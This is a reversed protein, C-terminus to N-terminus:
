VRSSALWSIDNEVSKSGIKYKQKLFGEVMYPKWSIKSKNYFFLVVFLGMESEIQM